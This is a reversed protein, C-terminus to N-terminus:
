CGLRGHRKTKQPKERENRNKERAAERHEGARATGRSLILHTSKKIHQDPVHSMLQFKVSSYTNSLSLVTQSLVRELLALHKDSRPLVFCM